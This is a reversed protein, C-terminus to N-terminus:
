KYLNYHQEKLQIQDRMLQSFHLEATSLEASKLQALLQLQRVDLHVARCQTEAQCLQALRANLEAQIVNLQLQLEHCQQNAHQVSMPTGQLAHADNTRQRKCPVLQGASDPRCNRPTSLAPNEALHLSIDPDLLRYPQQAEAQLDKKTSASDCSDRHGHVVAEKDTHSDDLVSTPCVESSHALVTTNVGTTVECGEIISRNQGGSVTLEGVPREELFCGGAAGDDLSLSRWSAAPQRTVREISSRATHVSDEEFKRPTCCVQQPWITM